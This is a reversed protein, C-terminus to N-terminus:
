KNPHRSWQDRLREMSDKMREAELHGASRSSTWSQENRFLPRRGPAARQDASESQFSQAQSDPSDGQGQEAPQRGQGLRPSGPQNGVNTPMTSDAM